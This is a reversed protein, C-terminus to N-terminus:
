ASSVAWIFVYSLACCTWVLDRFYNIHSADLHTTLFLILHFELSLCPALDYFCWFTRLLIYNQLWNQVMLSKQCIDILIIFISLLFNLIQLLFLVRIKPLQNLARSNSKLFSLLEIKKNYASLSLVPFISLVCCTIM